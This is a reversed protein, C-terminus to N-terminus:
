RDFTWSEDNWDTPPAKIGAQEVLEANYFLEQNAFDLPLAYQRGCLQYLALASEFLDSTDFRDRRAFPTLDQLANRVIYSTVEAGNGANFLDPPTGASILAQIKEQLNTTVFVLEPKIQPHAAAFAKHIENRADANTQNGGQAVTVTVGSRVGPTPVG